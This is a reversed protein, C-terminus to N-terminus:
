LRIMISPRKKLLTDVLDREHKMFLIIQSLVTPGKEEFKINEEQYELEMTFIDDLEHEFRSAFTDLSIEYLEHVRM